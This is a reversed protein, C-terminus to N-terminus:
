DSGVIVTSGYIGVIGKIALPRERGLTGTRQRGGVENPKAEAAFVGFGLEQFANSSLSTQVGVQTRVIHLVQFFSNFLAILVCFQNNIRHDVVRCLVNGGLTSHQTALDICDQQSASQSTRLIDDFLEALANVEKCGGIAVWTFVLHLSQCAIRPFHQLTMTFRPNVISLYLDDNPILM